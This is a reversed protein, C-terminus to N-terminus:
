VLGCLVLLGCASVGAGAIRLSRKAAASTAILGLGVGVGHLVATALAFGAAYPALSGGPMETVHAHGHFLAFFGVLGVILWRPLAFTGAVLLGLVFVSAAIGGEVAPLAVGAAALLGGVLMLAVFALPLRWVMPRGLQGALVGVALMALLHDLGLIPHTTGATFGTADGHGTHAGAVGATSLLAFTAILSRQICTM